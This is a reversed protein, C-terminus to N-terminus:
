KQVKSKPKRIRSLQTNMKLLEEKTLSVKMEEMMSILRLVSVVGMMQILGKMEIRIAKMKKASLKGRLSRRIKLGLRLFWLKGRVTSMVERVRDNLSFRGEPANIDAATLEGSQESKYSSEDATGSVTNTEM